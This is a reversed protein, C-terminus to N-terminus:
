MRVYETPSVDFKEKFCKIFYSTDNFGVRAALEAVRVDEVALIDIAKKLRYNRIFQSPTLGTLMKLKRYLHVRSLGVEKGLQEVSYESNGLQMDLQSIIAALLGQDYSNYRIESKEPLYAKHQYLNRLREKQTLINQIRLLLERFIFPKTLYDDAGIELSGIKFDSDQIATLLIVPIHSTLLNTKIRACFEKGNMQPLMVDSIVLAIEESELLELGKEASDASLVPYHERVKGSIYQRLDPNDEVVLITERSVPGSEPEETGFTNHYPMYESSLAFLKEEKPPLTDFAMLVDPISITFHTGEDIKSKVEIEGKMLDKVIAKVLSLGVGTGVAASKGGTFFRDFIYPIDKEPIGIGSDIVELKLTHLLDGDAAMSIKLLISGQPPTYKFANSLLNLLVKELKEKDLLLVSDATNGTDVEWDIQLRAALSRFGEKLQAALEQMRVPSLNLQEKDLELRNIELLQNVLLLLSRGHYRMSSIKKKDEAGLDPNELMEDLPSLILTLPTRIEHSIDTFYKVKLQHVFDVEELEKEKMQLKASRIANFRILLVGGAIALAYLLYAPFTQWFPPKIHVPVSYARSSWVGDNNASQLQFTYKGPPIQSYEAIGHSDAYKWDEEFGAMKYRYTNNRPMLYSLGAFEFTLTSQDHRLRIPQPHLLDIDQFQVLSSIPLNAIKLDTLYVPAQFTNNFLSQPGFKVWANKGGVIFPYVPDSAQQYAGSNVETLPFGNRIHYNAFVGNKLQSIGNFTNLWVQDKTATFSSLVTNNLLGERTTYTHVPNFKEDLVWLGQNQTSIFLQGDVASVHNVDRIGPLAKKIEGDPRCEFYIVGHNNTSILYTTEDTKLLHKGAGKGILTHLEERNDFPIILSSGPHFLNLGGGKDTLLWLGDPAESIHNIVGLEQWTKQSGPRLSVPAAREKKLVYLGHRLTGIWLQGSRHDYYLSKIVPRKRVSEGIAWSRKLGGNKDYQYIFGNETSVYLDTHSQTFGSVIGPSVSETHQPLVTHQFRSLYHDYLFAGNHFTGAWLSGNNDTMLSRVSVKAGPEIGHYQHIETLQGTEPALFALGQFGGVWVRDQRDKALARTNNLSTKFPAKSKESWHRLIKGEVTCEYIGDDYTALYAHGNPHFLIDEVRLVKGLDPTVLKELRSGAKRYRILGHNATAIWYIQDPAQIIKTVSSSVTNDQEDFCAPSILKESAADFIYIGSWGCGWLQGDIVSLSRIETSGSKDSVIVYNRFRNQKRIFLSIGKNHAIWLNGNGAEAIDNIQNGAITLTDGIVNKYIKTRNGDFLNLGDRTGLWVFGYSDQHIALVSSQSIGQEIGVPQM